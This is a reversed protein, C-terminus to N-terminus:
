HNTISMFRCQLLDVLNPSERLNAWDLNIFYTTMLTLFSIPSPNSLELIACLKVVDTNVMEIRLGLPLDGKYTAFGQSKGGYIFISDVIDDSTLLLSLGDDKYNLYKCDKFVKSETLTKGKTLQQVEPSSLSKRIQTSCSASLPNLFFRRV